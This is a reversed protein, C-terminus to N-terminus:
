VAGIKLLSHRSHGPNTDAFLLDSSVWREEGRRADSNKIRVKYLTYGVRPIQEGVFEGDQLQSLIPDIDSRINRYRKALARLNRKFEATFRIEVPMLKADNLM